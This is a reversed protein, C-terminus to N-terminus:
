SDPKVEPAADQANSRLDQLYNQIDNVASLTNHNRMYLETIEKQLNQISASYSSMRQEIFRKFYDFIEEKISNILTSSLNNISEEANIVRRQVELIKEIRDNLASTISDIIHNEIIRLDLESLGTKKMVQEFDDNLKELINSM